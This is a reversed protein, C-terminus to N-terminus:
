RGKTEPSKVKIKRQYIKTKSSKIDAQSSARPMDGEKGRIRKKEKRERM